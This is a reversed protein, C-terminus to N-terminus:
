KSTSSKLCNLIAPLIGAEILTDIVPDKEPNAFDFLSQVESVALYRTTQDQSSVLAV